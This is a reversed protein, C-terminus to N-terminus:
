RIRGGGHVNQITDDVFVLTESAEWEVERLAHKFYGFSPKQLEVASSYLIREFKWKSVRDPFWGRLSSRMTIRRFKRFKDQLFLKLKGRYHM